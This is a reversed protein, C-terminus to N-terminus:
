EDDTGGKYLCSIFFIFFLSYCVREGRIVSLVAKSILQNKVVAVIVLAKGHQCKRVFKDALYPNDFTKDFRQGSQNICTITIM